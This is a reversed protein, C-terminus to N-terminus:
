KKTISNLIKGLRDLSIPKELFDYIGTKVAGVATEITAYASILVIPLDPFNEHVQQALTMGDIEPMKLDVLLLDYEYFPMKSHDKTKILQLFLDKSSLYSVVSCGKFELFEKLFKISAQDDDIICVSIKEKPGPEMLPTIAYLKNKQADLQNKAKQKQLEM